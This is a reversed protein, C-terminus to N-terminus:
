EGGNIIFDILKNMGDKTSMHAVMEAKNDMNLSEYLGVLDLAINEDLSAVLQEFKEGLTPPTFDEPTFRAVTANIVDEKTMKKNQKTVCRSCSCDGSHSASKMTKTGRMSAVSGKSKWPESNADKALEDIQEHESIPYNAAKQFPTRKDVPKPKEDPYSVTVPSNNKL